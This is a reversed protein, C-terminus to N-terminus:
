RPPRAGTALYMLTQPDPIVRRWLARIRMSRLWSAYAPGWKDPTNEAWALAIAGLACLLVVAQLNPLLPALRLFLMRRTAECAWAQQEDDLAPWAPPSAPDWSAIAEPLHQLARRHAKGTKSDALYAAVDAQQLVEIARAAFGTPLAGTPPQGGLLQLMGGVTHVQELAGLLAKEMPVQDPHLPRQRVKIASGPAIPDADRWTRWLTSCAPDVGARLGSETQVPVFPWQGCMHPKADMGFEAHIGCLMDSRLFVCHGNDFRLGENEVPDGQVGLKPALERVRAAETETVEVFVGHCCAGCAFCTHRPATRVSFSESM